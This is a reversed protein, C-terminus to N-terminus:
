RMLKLDKTFVDIEDAWFPGIGICTNTPVNNFATKGCDTILVCPIDPREQKIKQYLQVLAVDDEIALCIKTFIGNLWKDLISNARFSIKYEHGELECEEDDEKMKYIPTKSMISLFAGLSAHAVQGAIKGKNIADKGKILDNRFVIVQKVEREEM